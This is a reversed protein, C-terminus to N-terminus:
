SKDLEMAPERETVEACIECVISFMSYMEVSMRDEEEICVSSEFVGCGSSAGPIASYLRAM